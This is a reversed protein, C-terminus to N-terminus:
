TKQAKKLKSLEKAVANLRDILLHILVENVLRYAERMNKDQLAALYIDLDDDSFARYTGAAQVLARETLSITFTSLDSTAFTELKETDYVDNQVGAVKAAKLFSTQVLTFVQFSHALTETVTKLDHLKSRRDPRGDFFMATAKANQDDSQFPDLAKSEADAIRRGLDSGYFEVAFLQSNETLSNALKAELRKLMDTEDFIVEVVALWDAQLRSRQMGFVHPAHMVNLKLSVVTQDFGTVALFHAMSNQKQQAQASTGTLACLFLFASIKKLLTLM